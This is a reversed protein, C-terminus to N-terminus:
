RSGVFRVVEKAVLAPQLQPALHNCGSLTTLEGNPLLPVLLHCVDRLLATTQDGLLVLVPQDVQELEGDSPRWDIVASQDFAFPLFNSHVGHERIEELRTMGSGEQLPGYLLDRFLALGEEVDGQQCLAVVEEKMTVVAPPRGNPPYMAYLAPEMLILGKVRGPFLCTHALAFNGGSSHGFMWPAAAGCERRVAEVAAAQEEITTNSELQGSRHYGPRDLSICRFQESLIDILGGFVDADSSAGHVFIMDPGSGVVNYYIGTRTIMPGRGRTDPRSELENERVASNLTSSKGRNWFYESPLIPPM